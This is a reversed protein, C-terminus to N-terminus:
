PTRKVLTMISDHVDSISQSADIVDFRGGEAYNQYAQWRKLRVDETDPFPENKAIIRSELMEYPLSLLVAHDPTPSLARIAWLSPKYISQLQPFRLLLDLEADNLFRDCIVTYGQALYIRVKCACQLLCDLLAMAVWSESVGATEFIQQRAQTQTHKPMLGPRAKRIFKRLLDMEQSYGPRFWIQKVQHGEKQLSDVLLDLQTTKGSCDVGSLTILRSKLKSM